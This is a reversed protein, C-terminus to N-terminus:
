PNTVEVRVRIVENDRLAISLVTNPGDFTPKSGRIYGDYDKSEVGNVVLFWKQNRVAWYAVTKGDPGFAAASGGDYPESEKGDVVMYWKPGRFALYAARRSDASFLLTGAGISDYENGEKGDLVVIWKKGRMMLYAVHKSDPSFLPPGSAVMEHEPGEIGDVVILWKDVKDVTRKAAYALRQSDPSFVLSSAGIADYPKGPANDLYVTWKGENQAMYGVHRGDPSTIITQALLGTAFKGLNQEQVPLKGSGGPLSTPQSGAAPLTTGAPARGVGAWSSREIGALAWAAALVVVGTVFTMRHRRASM